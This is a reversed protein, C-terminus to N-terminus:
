RISDKIAGIAGEHPLVGSVSFFCVQMVTNIRGGMGCERAVRGADIVFFRARKEQLSRQTEEPLTEWVTDPGHSSNLLLLGGPQLKEAVDFQELFLPQHCGVFHAQTILYPARIPKPGFRLHSVTVAGAKKSDYVFYGQAYCGTNEGIIKISEKNAGVTGDSGLGYFLARFTEGSEISFSEDYDLSTHSVDDRIGVTFHNVLSNPNVGARM